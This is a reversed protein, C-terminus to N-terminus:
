DKSIKDYIKDVEEESLLAAWKNMPCSSSLSRSKLVLSCGCSGCCPQTGPLACLSGQTDYHECGKCIELRAEAIEEVEKKKFVNNKVGELIAGKNKWIELLSM